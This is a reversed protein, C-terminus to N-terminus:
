DGVSTEVQRSNLELFRKPGEPTLKTDVLVYLNIDADDPGFDEVTARIIIKDGKQLHNGNKDKM